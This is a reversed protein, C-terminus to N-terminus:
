NELLRRFPCTADDPMHSYCETAGNDLLIQLSQISNIKRKDDTSDCISSVYSNLTGTLRTGVVKEKTKQVILRIIDFHGKENAGSILANSAGWVMSQYSPPAFIILNAIDIHNQTLQEDIDCIEFLGLCIDIKKYYTKSWKNPGLM